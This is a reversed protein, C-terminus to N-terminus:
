YEEMSGPVVEPHMTKGAVVVSAASYRTTGCIVDPNRAL